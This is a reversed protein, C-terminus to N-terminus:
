KINSFIKSYNSMIWRWLLWMVHVITVYNCIWFPNVLVEKLSRQSSIGPSCRQGVVFWWSNIYGRFEQIFIGYLLANSLRLKLTMLIVWCASCFLIIEPTEAHVGYHFFLIAVHQKYTFTCMNHNNASKCLKRPVHWLMRYALEWHWSVTIERFVSLGPTPMQSCGGPQGFGESDHIVLLEKVTDSVFENWCIIKGKWNSESPIFLLHWHTTKDRLFAYFISYHKWSGRGFFAFIERKQKGPSMCIGTTSMWEELIDEMFPYFAPPSLPLLPIADQLKDFQSYQYRM